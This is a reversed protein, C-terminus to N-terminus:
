KELKNVKVEALRLLQGKWLFGKQTEELVLNDPKTSQNDISTVKMTLPDYRQDICDVPEVQYEILIRQLQRLTIEQGQRITQMKQWMPRKFRAFFGKPEPDASAQLAVELRDHLEILTILVPKLLQSTQQELQQQQSNISQELYSQSSNLATFVEKFEDLASKIHRSQTKVESKLVTVEEFVSYIDTVKDAPPTLTEPATEIFDSFQEIVIHKDLM